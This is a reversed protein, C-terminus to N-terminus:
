LLVEYSEIYTNCDYGVGYRLGFIISYIILGFTIYRIKRTQTTLRSSIYLVVTIILYVVITQIIIYVAM